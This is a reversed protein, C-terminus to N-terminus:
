SWLWYIGIIWDCKKKKDHCHMCNNGSSWNSISSKILECTSWSWRRVYWHWVSQSSSRLVSQKTHHMPIMCARYWSWEQHYLKSRAFAQLMWADRTPDSKIFKIFACSILSVLLETVGNPSLFSRMSAKPRVPIIRYAHEFSLVFWGIISFAIFSPRLSSVRVLFIQVMTFFCQASVSRLLSPLEALLPHIDWAPRIWKRAVELVHMNSLRLM